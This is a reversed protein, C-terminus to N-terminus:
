RVKRLTRESGNGGRAVFGTVEGSTDVVFTLTVAENDGPSFTTGSKHVLHQKPNGLRAPPTNFLIGNELTVTFVVGPVAEYEGVFKAAGAPAAAAPTNEITVVPQPPTQAVPTPARRPAPTLGHALQAIVGDVDVPVRPVGNYLVVVSISDAPYWLSSAAYGATTGEHLIVQKGWSEPRVYLGLGYNRAIAAAGRPTTMARYSADSLVRGGHLARNWKALDSATTCIGGNGLMQSPHFSTVPRPKAQASRVYSEAGGSKDTTCVALSTLGLPRAIEDRLAEAYSKGYLKEIIAGAFMYGTNSYTFKTGPKAALTDRAALAVLSDRTTPMTGREASRFESTLGSTHNLIQEVTLAGFEPELGDFFQGLTDGLSLRGSDVLKLVLAATFQKSVSAVQYITSPEAKRGSSVDALGWAREVLTEDGRTVVVSVSPMGQGLVDVQVVSDIKAALVAVDPRVTGNTDQAAAMSASVPVALCAVFLCVSKLSVPMHCWPQLSHERLTAM